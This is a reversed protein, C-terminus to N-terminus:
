RGAPSRCVPANRAEWPLWAVCLLGGFWTEVFPSATLPGDSYSKNVKAILGGRCARVSALKLRGRVKRDTGDHECPPPLGCAQNNACLEHDRRVAGLITRVLEHRVRGSRGILGQPGDHALDHIPADREDLGAPPLGERPRPAAQHASGLRV